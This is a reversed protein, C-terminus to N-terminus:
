KQAESLTQPELAEANSTEAVFAYEDNCESVSATWDDTPQQVGPALKPKGATSWSGRGGLLNSIKKTPKRIRKESAEADSTDPADSVPAEPVDPQPNGTVTRSVAPPNDIIPLDATTKIVNVEEEEDSHSASLKEYYINREVSVIKTDPWYIRAGKSEEDMGLWRGERVSGGLKTGKEVRVHVKEGWERVGKLDPKKRFAAEFLTMGEVAKTSTRNLLWVVHRAVEGWLNKLLGSAHLLARIREAITRNRREAVGTQNHTDHVNLKQHTGKSKLYEIFGDGQYEGGRDSSLAKIKAGMQMEVWAEYQKYARVTEDKSKLLYLHTLRTKDDIFTVYYKKGGKSEVPAKGWLDSHVEGGFIEARERERMKPVAKRTAKAYVCSACFFDKTPSYVLWIGTVMKEKLLKQAVDLSIHGMRRHFQDLTLQEEAASAVAEEHEVRYVRTSTRLVVRIEIDDEGFLMCKGGGFRVTFGAEDLRGVSVLTYGVEASYLVDHLRFQTEGNGNPIDIVLEGKGTTSFTQKNAARFHHPTITQFKEFHTRYPSIHNTCGSNYLEAMGASQVSEAVVLAEGSADLLDEVDVVGGGCMLLEEELDSVEGVVDSPMLIEPLVEEVAVAEEFWDM